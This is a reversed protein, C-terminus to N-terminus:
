LVTKEIIAVAGHFVSEDGHLSYAIRHTRFSVYKATPRVGARVKVNEYCASSVSWFLWLFFLKTLDSLLRMNSLTEIYLYNKSVYQLLLPWPLSLFTVCFYFEDAWFFLRCYICTLWVVSGYSNINGYNWRLAPLNAYFQCHSITSAILGLVYPVLPWFTQHRNSNVLPGCLVVCVWRQSCDLESLM